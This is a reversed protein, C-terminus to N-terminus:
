SSRHWLRAVNHVWPQVGPPNSLGRRHTWTLFILSAVWYGLWEPPADTLLLYLGISLVMLITAWASERVSLYWFALMLGGVTIVEYLALGVWSGAIAAIAKGGNFGFWVPYAHGVAPALAVLVVRWDRIGLLLYALAVPIAAKLCDLIFATVGWRVGGAKIVNTMGPNGDGVTAIDTNLIYRTILKSYLVSGSLYGVLILAFTSIM